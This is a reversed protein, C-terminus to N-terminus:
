YCYPLCFLINSIKYHQFKTLQWKYQWSTCPAGLKIVCIYYSMIEKNYGLDQYM